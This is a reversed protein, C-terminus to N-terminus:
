HSKKEWFIQKAWVILLIRTVNLKKDVISSLVFFLRHLLGDFEKNCLSNQTREDITMLFNFLQIYWEADTICSGTKIERSFTRYRERGFLITSSPM